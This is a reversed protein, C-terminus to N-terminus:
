GIRQEFRSKLQPWDTDPVTYYASDRISGDWAPRDAYRVGELKGGVREIANRSRENRADTRLSVRYVQWVEFAYSFLLYKCETNCSSRQASAAMWTHGVECTDPLVSDPRNLYPPWQWCEYDYYSTSGVVKGDFVIAFPYRQGKSRGALASHIYDLADDRSHPVHTYDYSSRDESAAAWLADCDSVLLPRLVVHRSQLEIEGPDFM